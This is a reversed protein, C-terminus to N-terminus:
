DTPDSSERDCQPDAEARAYREKPICHDSADRRHGNSDHDTEKLARGIRGISSTPPTGRIEACGPGIRVTDLTEGSVGASRVAPRARWRSKRGSGFISRVASATSFGCSACRVRTERLCRRRPACCTGQRSAVHEHNGMRTRSARGRLGAGSVGLIFPRGPLKPVSVRASHRTVCANRPGRGNDPVRACRQVSSGPRLRLRLSETASHNKAFVRGPVSRSPEATKALPPPATAPALMAQRYALLVAKMKTEFQSDRKELYYCVKQPQIQAETLIRHM